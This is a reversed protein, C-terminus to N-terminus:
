RKIALTVGDSIPLMSPMVRSDAHIKDNIRRLAETDEDQHSLRAVDGGWLVNDLIILGGTRLLMLAREYYSDYSTKDADIFVIDFQGTRGERILDDLTELAPAIRLDIREAVGAEEWYGQGVETWEESVDCAILEGDEPLSLAMSLASYGTFTGVEIIRTAGMLEVILRMFQGQEPAIQMNSRTMSSTQDRLRRLVDPERLSAGLLYEHIEPTMQIAKM